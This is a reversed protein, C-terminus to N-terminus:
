GKPWQHRRKRLAMGAYKVRSHSQATAQSYKEDKECVFKCKWANMLKSILLGMAASLPYDLIFLYRNKVTWWRDKLGALFELFTSGFWSFVSFKHWTGYLLHMHCCIGKGSLFFNGPTEMEGNQGLRIYLETTPVPPSATVATACTLNGRRIKWPSTRGFSNTFFLIWITKISNIPLYFSSYIRLFEKLQM